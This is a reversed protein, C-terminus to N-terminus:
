FMDLYLHLYIEYFNVTDLYFHVFAEYCNYTDLYLHMYTRLYFLVYRSIPAFINM